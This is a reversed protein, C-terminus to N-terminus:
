FYFCIYLIVWYRFLYQLLCSLKPLNYNGVIGFRWVQLMLNQKGKAEDGTFTLLPREWWQWESSAPGKGEVWLWLSLFIFFFFFFTWNTRTVSWQGFSTVHWVLHWLCVFVVRACMWFLPSSSINLYYRPYSEFIHCCTTTKCLSLFLYIIVFNFIM